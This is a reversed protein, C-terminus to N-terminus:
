KESRRKGILWLGLLACGMTALTAPEPTNPGVTFTYDIEAQFDASIAEAFSINAGGASVSDSTSTSGNLSFNGTGEYNLFDAASINKIVGTLGDFGTGTTLGLSTNGVTFPPPAYSVASCSASPTGQPCTPDGSPGLTISSDFLSLTENTFKDASNASNGSNLVLDSTLQFTFTDTSATLNTLTLASVTEQGAFYITAGTLTGFTPNFDPLTLTYSGDVNFTVPPTTLYNISNASAVGSALVAFTAGALIRRIVTM